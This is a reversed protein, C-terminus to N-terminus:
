ETVSLTRNASVRRGQHATEGSSKSRNHHTDSGIVYTNAAGNRADPVAACTNTVDPRTTTEENM